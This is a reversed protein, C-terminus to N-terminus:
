KTPFSMPRTRRNVVISAGIRITFAEVGSIATTQSTSPGAPSRYHSSLPHQHTIQPRFLHQRMQFNGIISILMAGCCIFVCKSLMKMTRASASRPIMIDHFGCAFIWVCYGVAAPIHGENAQRRRRDTYEGNGGKGYDRIARKRIRRVGRVQGLGFSSGQLRRLARIHNHPRRRRRRPSHEAPLPDQEATRIRRSRSCSGDKSRSAERRHSCPQSASERRRRRAQLRCVILTHKAYDCHCLTGKQMLRKRKHEDFMDAAKRKVTEDSHTKAKSVKLAKGYLEFGTMEDVAELASKESDFVIFAQGKRKLSSKAIIDLIPGYYQFVKTLAQKM